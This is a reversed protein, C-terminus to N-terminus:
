LQRAQEIVDEVSDQVLLPTGGVRVFTREEQVPIPNGQADTLDGEKSIVGKHVMVNMPNLIHYEQLVGDAGEGTVTLVNM